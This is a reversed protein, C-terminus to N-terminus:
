RNMGAARDAVRDVPGLAALFADIAPRASVGPRPEVASVLIAVARRPGGLLRVKLTELKVLAENGTTVDGVRYFSAVERVVPGPASIRFATGHPPPATRETWAWPGAPDIAGRGYGVLGRGDSLAGFVHIGLDVERGAADRYRGLLWHDAGDFRPRWPTGRDMAVRTWGPVAPLDIHAPLTVAGSLALARAYAVPAAAILLASLAVPVLRGAGGTGADREPRAPDLWRDGPRRDFFPWSAAMVGAIVLAFFIWGYVVHDVGAAFRADTLWAIYITGWARVGNALISVSVAAALFAIRRARGRFCVNAVLAGYAVMAVLFKVGSCAEAVEFYGNSTTIFVGEVHAPVGALALLAMCMRATLTQLPPELAEGMPVLFFLYFLPFAIGRAVAPGLLAIVAGQLMLVLALHRAFNVDAASGALWALAGLAVIGLGPAWARPTLRALEERRLWVLWGILPPIFLCHGYTSSTWWIRATGAADRAFLLLLAGAVIGLAILPRRWRASATVDPARGRPVAMPGILTM